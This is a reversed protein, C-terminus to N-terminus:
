IHQIGWLFFFMLIFLMTIQIKLIWYSFLVPPSYVSSSHTVFFCLSTFWVGENLICSTWPHMERCWSCLPNCLHRWQKEIIIYVNFKKSWQCFDFNSEGENWFPPEMHIQCCLPASSSDALDVKLHERRDFHTMENYRVTLAGHKCYVGLLTVDHSMVTSLPRHSIFLQLQNGSLKCLSLELWGGGEM